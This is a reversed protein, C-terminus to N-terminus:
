LIGNLSILFYVESIRNWTLTEINTELIYTEM